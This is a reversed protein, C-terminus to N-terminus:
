PLRRPTDSPDGSRRYRNKFVQMISAVASDVKLMPVTTVVRGNPLREFGPGLTAAEPVSMWTGFVTAFLEGEVEVVKLRVATGGPPRKCDFTDENDALSEAQKRAEQQRKQFSSASGPDHALM